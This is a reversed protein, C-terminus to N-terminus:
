KKGLVVVPQGALEYKEVNYRGTRLFYIDFVTSLPLFRSSFCVASETDSSVIHVRTRKQMLDFLDQNKRLILEESQDGFNIQTASRIHFDDSSPIKELYSAIEDSLMKYKGDMMLDLKLDDIMSELVSKPNTIEGTLITGSARALDETDDEYSFVVGTHSGIADLLNYNTHEFLKGDALYIPSAIVPIRDSQLAKKYASDSQLICDSNETRKKDLSDDFLKAAELLNNKDEGYNLVRGGSSAYYSPFRNEFGLIRELGEVVGEGAIEEDVVVFLTKIDPNKVAFDGLEGYKEVCPKCWTASIDVITKDTQKLALCLEELVGGGSNLARSTIDVISDHAPFYKNIKKVASFDEKSEVVTAESNLNEHSKSPEMGLSLASAVVYLLPRLNM